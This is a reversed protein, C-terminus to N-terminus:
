PRRGRSPRRDRSLRLSFHAGRLVFVHLYEGECAYIALGRRGRLAEEVGKGRYSEPFEVVGNKAKIYLDLDCISIRSLAEELSICAM